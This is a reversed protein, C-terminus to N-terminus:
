QNWFMNDGCPHYFRGFIAEATFTKGNGNKGAILFFGKPNAVFDNVRKMYDEPKDNIESLHPYVKFGGKTPAKSLTETLTKPEGIKRLVAPLLETLKKTRLQIM